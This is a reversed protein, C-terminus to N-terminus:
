MKVGNISDTDKATKQTTKIQKVGKKRSLKYQYAGHNHHCFTEM